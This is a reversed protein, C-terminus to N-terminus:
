YGSNQEGSTEEEGPLLTVQQLKRQIQRTRVGVLNELESSAQNLRNQAQALAQGFTDFEAKVSGLVKWVESSRKQIALTKFGMQLSNLLAAMTTPGAVVIKYERQLREATGRRVVEAYLGEVPLFMVGFDTTHGPALYKDHIDKGFGRVRKDLEKAALEVAAKDATDYAALLAAYADQPFKADIPLWVPGDGDGPLKVAFEVREASGPVTAVNEAYQGPALLQELIAGLQVEGLIGRTKVNSLVKKLDGVGAALTRMEGLGKYVLELQQSVLGFSKQLRDELTKQLKEDVTQRMEGLRRDTVAQMANLRVEMTTRISELKQETQVNSAQLGSAVSGSLEQRTQRIEALLDQRVKELDEGSLGRPRRLLNALSLVCALGALVLTVIEMM